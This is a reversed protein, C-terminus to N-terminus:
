GGGVCVGPRCPLCQYSSPPPPPLPPTSLLRYVTFLLRYVISMPCFFTPLLCYATPLLYHVCPLLCYVAGRGRRAVVSMGDSVAITAAIAPPPPTLLRWVARHARHLLQRPYIQRNTVSLLM